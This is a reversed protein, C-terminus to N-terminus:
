QAAGGEAEAGETIRFFLQELSEGAGEAADRTYQAAISGRMMIAVADWDEGVSDLMHTSVVVTAGAACLERLLAKLEKIAHPDLGVLPEDFIIARPRPLVACCVSLKQQMGKSLDSGFKKRHELLEFRALLADAAQEWGRPLSYARAIFQLHEEVTLLNYVAPVEPVYGLLSKAELSRNDFGDITIRGSCRLLGVICKLLTSKGAGNPGLLIVTQGSPMTLNIDNNAIAGGYKKTVHEIVIM